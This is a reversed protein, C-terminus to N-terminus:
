NDDTRGETGELFREYIEGDDANGGLMLKEAASVIIGSIESEAEAILKKKEARAIDGAETILKESKRHAEAIIAEGEAEMSRTAEARERAIEEDASALKEEYSAKLREAEALAKSADEGMDEYYKKRKDMFDKVPKYLLVYMGLTLLAFNM